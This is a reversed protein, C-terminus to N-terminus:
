SRRLAPRGVYVLLTPAALVAFVAWRLAEARPAASAEALEELGLALLWAAFAILLVSTVAFFRRVNLRGVGRYFVVGLAVAVALGAAGGIAASAGDSGRVSSFVLLAAELGERVVGVFVVAALALSSRTALARGARDELDARLSGAQRRMWVIMWTLLSAAAM